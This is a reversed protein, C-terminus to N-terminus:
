DRVSCLRYRSVCFLQLSQHIRVLDFYACLTNTGCAGRRFARELTSASLVHRLLAITAEMEANLWVV